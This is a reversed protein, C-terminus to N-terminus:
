LLIKLFTYYVENGYDKLSFCMEYLIRTEPRAQGVAVVPLPPTDAGHKHGPQKTNSEM